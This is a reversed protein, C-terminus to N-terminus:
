ISARDHHLSPRGDTEVSVGTKMSVDMKVSNDTEVSGDM